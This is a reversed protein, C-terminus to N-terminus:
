IGDSFGQGDWTGLITRPICPSIHLNGLGHPYGWDDEMMMWKQNPTERYVMWRYLPVRIKPFRWIIIKARSHYKAFQFVVM